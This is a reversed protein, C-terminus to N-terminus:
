KKQISVTYRKVITEGNGTVVENGFEISALYEDGTVLNKERMYSLFSVLDITGTGLAPKASIFAIYKWGDGWHDAVFVAYTPGDLSVRESFAGGPGMGGQRDLWIMIEHTIPPVGFTSPNPTDTLWLDFAVNGSGTNSSTVDYFISASGIDSIRIPLAKTTTTTGPKQGFIIEPYGKVNSGSNLWDWTWRGALAGDAGTGIGICQSWGSLNGKGWTNNEARYDASDILAEDDCKMTITIETATPEPTDISTPVSTPSASPTPNLMQVSRCAHLFLGSFLLISVIAIQHKKVKEELSGMSQDVRIVCGIIIGTAASSIVAKALSPMTTRTCTATSV